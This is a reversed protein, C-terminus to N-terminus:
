IRLHTELGEDHEGVSLTLDFTSVGHDILRGVRMGLAGAQHNRAHMPTLNFMVQFVPAESLTRDPHLAEVLREFPLDQNSQAELTMRRVRNLLEAFDPDGSLDVRLALTNIFLGILEDLEARPAAPM